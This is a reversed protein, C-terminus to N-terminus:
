NSKGSGKQKDSNGARKGSHDTGANTAPVTTDGESTERGGSSQFFQQMLRSTATTARRGILGPKKAALTGLRGRYSNLKANAADKEQTILNNEKSLQTIKIQTIEVNKELRLITQNQEAVQDKATQVNAKEIAVQEQLNLTQNYLFVGAGTTLALAVILGLVMYKM